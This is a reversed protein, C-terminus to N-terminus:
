IYPLADMDVDTTSWSIIIYIDLVQFHGWTPRVITFHLPQFYVWSTVQYNELM